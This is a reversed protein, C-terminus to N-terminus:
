KATVSRMGYATAESRNRVGLRGYIDEIHREVTRLSLVLLQAIERNTKGQVILRLVEDQRPTLSVEPRLETIVEASHDLPLSAVFADIATLVEESRGFLDGPDNSDVLALQANPIACALQVGATYNLLINGRPHVVLTPTTVFPLIASVDSPACEQYRKVLNQKPILARLEEVKAQGKEPPLGPPLRSWLFLDWNEDALAAIRQLPWNSIATTFLVLGALREPHAVAYKLAAHSFLCTSALIFRDDGAVDVVAELDFSYHDLCFDPPLECASMGQGRPDFQVLRFRESLGTLLAGREEWNWVVQIHSFAPPALVFPVGSGSVAYAISYNDSTTKYKVAPVNMAGQM